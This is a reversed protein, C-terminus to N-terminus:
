QCGKGFLIHLGFGWGALGVILGVVWSMTALWVLIGLAAAPPLAFIFVGVLVAKFQDPHMPM